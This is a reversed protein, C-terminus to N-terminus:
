EHGAKKGKANLLVIAALVSLVGLFAPLSLRERYVLAGLVTAVVPEVTALIAARSAETTQLGKTYALYPIVATVVAAVPIFWLMSADRVAALTSWLAPRDCLLFSGAAAILFTYFTVTMPRYRRWAVSFLISYLAYGFVAGLGVLLGGGASGGRRLGSVLVCGAFALALALLKRATIRERFFLASMLMVWIPSTYLLIAATSLPLLEIARFYCFTFFLVSVLGLGLFLPLDRAAVRFGERDRVLLILAFVAAGLGLRLFVLHLSSFGFANLPRTFTGMSGWFVGALLILVAGTNRKKEM